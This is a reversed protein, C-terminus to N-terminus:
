PCVPLQVRSCNLFLFAGGGGGGGRLGCAYGTPARVQRRRAQYERLGKAKMISGKKASGNPFYFLLPRRGTTPADDM